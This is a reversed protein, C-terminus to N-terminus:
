NGTNYLLLKNNIWELHLLRCRSVAFELGVGGGCGVGGWGRGEQSGCTQDRCGHAQKQKMSLNM